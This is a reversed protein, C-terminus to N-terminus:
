AGPVAAGTPEATGAAPGTATGAAPGAATGTAPTDANTSSKPTFDTVHEAPANLAQKLKEILGPVDNIPYSWLLAAAGDSQLTYCSLIFHSSDDSITVAHMLRAGAQFELGFYGALLRPMLEELKEYVDFGMSKAIKLAMELKASDFPESGDKKKRFLNLM